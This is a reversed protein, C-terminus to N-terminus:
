WGLYYKNFLLGWGFTYEHIYWCEYEHAEKETLNEMLINVVCPIKNVINNFHYNRNLFYCRNGKGKGVYFPENTDLRIWEYVYFNNM